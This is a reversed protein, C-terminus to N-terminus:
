NMVNTSPGSPPQPLMEEQLADNEGESPKSCVKERITPGLKYGAVGGAAAGASVGGAGVLKAAVAGGAPVAGAGLAAAIMTAGTGVAGVCCGVAANEKDEDSCELLRRSPQAYKAQIPTAFHLCSWGVLISRGLIIGM